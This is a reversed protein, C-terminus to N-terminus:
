FALQMTAPPNFYATGGRVSGIQRVLEDFTATERVFDIRSSDVILLPSKSYHFFYRDYADVLETLYAPDMNSEYSRGRLAVNHLLRDVSSRLYVVLDPVPASPEMIGYLTEYLRVEDGDLTVHAFIRDKDFTYDSVVHDVFLDRAALAKQQKFRSALFALQTQLAWRDRDGYFRDLFPNEEFEEEVLKGGAREALMRALTTKGAGIVGEVAVYGLHAPLTPAPM